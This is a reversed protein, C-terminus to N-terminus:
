RVVKKGNVIFIGKQAKNVRQGALNFLPASSVQIKSASVEEMGTTTDENLLYFSKVTAGAYDAFTKPLALYAKHAGNEFAAGNAAMWYFGVSAPDSEGNLTLAYFYTGGTTTEAADTGKLMNNPDVDGEANTIDFSYVGAPAKLVVATGAPIVDGVEYVWSEELKDTVTYTYAEMGAPVLLNCGSYYLTAYGAAGVTANISTTYYVKVETFGCTGGITASFAAAGNAPTVTVTSGDVSTTANTWSSNSLANAYSASTATFVVNTIYYGAAPTITLVSNTYFRTSTYTKGETGPYYNNTKTTASGKAVGMSAYASTWTMAEETATATQDKSLDWSNYPATVNGELSITKSIAGVSELKIIGNYSSVALGAKLRVYVTQNTVADKPFAIASGFGADATLSVEYDGEVDLTIDNTLNEGSLTFSQTASPGNGLGYSFGSLTTTSAIIAPATSHEISILQNGSNFEYTTGFKKITGKVVVEDGVKVDSTATFDAGDIGKGKYVEFKDTDTGDDSIWYNMSGSSLESGGECVIGAVYVDTLGTNADIANRADAVTYPDAETGAHLVPYISYTATAVNSKDEGNIAIAKITTTESVVIPTSYLQSAESPTTGDTTYFIAVGESTCSIEVNQTSTYAGEAVSFTPTAISSEATYTLVIDDLRANSSSTQTFTIIIDTANDALTITYTSTKKSQTSGKVEKADATGQGTSTNSKVSPKLNTQNTIFKLTCVGTCEKLDSITATFTGNSKAVLLEPSTGGATNETYIKTTGGGDTCAYQYTGGTPVADKAFSSFDESWLVTEDGAWSM